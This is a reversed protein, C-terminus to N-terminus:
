GFYQLVDCSLQCAIRCEVVLRRGEMSRSRKLRRESSTSSCMRFHSGLFVSRLQPWTFRRKLRTDLSSVSQYRNSRLLRVSWNSPSTSTSLRPTTTSRSAWVDM